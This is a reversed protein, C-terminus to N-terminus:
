MISRSCAQFIRQSNVLDSPSRLCASATSVQTAAYAALEALVLLLPGDGRQQVIEIPLDVGREFLMRLLALRNQRLAAHVFLDAARNERVGVMGAHRAVRRQM